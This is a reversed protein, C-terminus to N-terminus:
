TQITAAISSKGAATKGIIGVKEKANVQFNVHDLALAFDEGYKMTVDLFKINGETPWQPPPEMGFDMIEKEPRVDEICKIIREIAIFRTEFDCAMRILTQMSNSLQLSLTIALAAFPVGVVSKYLVAFICVFFTISICLIDLRIFMWRMSCQHMYHAAIYTNLLRHFKKTFRLQKRFIKIDTLSQLTSNIHTFIPSRSAAVIRKLDRMSNSFIEHIMVFILTLIVAPFVFWPYISVVLVTNALVFLLRNLFSELTRPIHNDVESMDKVLNNWIHGISTREFYSMRSHFIELFLDNHLRDSARSTFSILLFGSLLSLLLMLLASIAYMTQYFHLNPNEIINEQKSKSENSTGNGKSLWYSLWWNNFNSSVALLIFIIMIFVLIVYGGMARCYAIYTNLSVSAKIPKEILEGALTNLLATKGSGVSGVIGVLTQSNVTFSMKDVVISGNPSWCLTADNLEILNNSKKDNILYSNIDSHLLFNEVRKISVNAQILERTFTPFQRIGHAAINNVMILTFARDDTAKVSMKNVQRTKKGIAVQLILSLILMSISFVTYIGFLYWTYIITVLIILPSGVLLPITHILQTIKVCDSSFLNSIEGIRKNAIEGSSFLKQYLCANLASLSRSTTRTSVAYMLSFCTLRSFEFLTLSLVWFTGRKLSNEPGDIFKLLQRMFYIGSLYGFILCLLYFISSILIRKAVFKLWVRDGNIDASDAISCSYVDKKTIGRMFSNWMIKTMWNFYMFDFFSCSDVPM